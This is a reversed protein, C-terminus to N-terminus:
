SDRRSPLCPSWTWGPRTWLPAPAGRLQWPRPSWTARTVSVAVAGERVALSADYKIEDGQREFRYVMTDSTDDTWEIVDIFQGGFIGFAM